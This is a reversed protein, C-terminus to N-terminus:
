AMEGLGYRDFIYKAADTRPQSYAIGSSYPYQPKKLLERFEELHEPSNKRITQAAEIGWIEIEDWNLCDISELEARLTGLRDITSQM